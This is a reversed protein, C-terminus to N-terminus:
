VEGIERRDTLEKLRTSLQRELDTVGQYKRVNHVYLDFHVASEASKFLIPRKNLAHAYGIEYYVNPREGTLDAILFESREIQELIVDTISGDHSVDDVRLADIGFEGCVRKITLHVDEVTGSDEDMRMIIFATNPEEDVHRRHIPAPVDSFDLTDPRNLAHALRLRAARDAMPNRAATKKMEELLSPTYLLDMVSRPDSFTVSEVGEVGSRRGRWPNITTSLLGLARRAEVETIGIREGLEETTIVETSPAKLLIAKLERLCEEALELLRNNPDVTSLGLATLSDGHTLRSDIDYPDFGPPFECLLKVFAARPDFDTGNEMATQMEALWKREYDKVAIRPWDPM